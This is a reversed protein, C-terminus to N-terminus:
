DVVDLQEGHTTAVEALVTSVIMAATRDSVGSRDCIEAVEHCTINKKASASKKTQEGEYKYSADKFSDTESSSESESNTLTVEQSTSPIAISSDSRSKSRSMRKLNRKTIKVDILGISM